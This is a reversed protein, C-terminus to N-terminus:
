RSCVEEGGKCVGECATTCLRSIRGGVVMSFGICVDGKWFLVESIHDMDESRVEVEFWIDV